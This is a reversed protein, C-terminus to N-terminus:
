GSKTSNLIYLFLVIVGFGYRILLIDAKSPTNPRRLVILMTMTWFPLMSYFTIRFLTGFDFAILGVALLAIQLTASVLVASRYREDLPM